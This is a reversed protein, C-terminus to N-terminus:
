GGPSRAEAAEGKAELKWAEGTLKPSTLNQAGLHVAFGMVAVSGTAIAKCFRM